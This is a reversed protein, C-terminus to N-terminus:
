PPVRPAAAPGIRRRRLGASAPAPQSGHNGSSVSDTAPNTSTRACRGSIRASRRASTFFSRAVRTSQEDADVRRIEVEADFRLELAGAHPRHVEHARRDPRPAALANVLDAPCHMPDQREKRELKREVFGGVNRHREDPMRERPLRPARSAARRALLQLEPDCLGDERKKGPAADGLDLRM